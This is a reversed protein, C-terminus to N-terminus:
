HIHNYRAVHKTYCLWHSNKMSCVCNTSSAAELLYQVPCSTCDLAIAFTAHSSATALYIFLNCHTHTHTHTHTRARTTHTHTWQLSFDEGLQFTGRWITAQQLVGEPPSCRGARLRPAGAALFTCGRVNCGGILSSSKGLLM